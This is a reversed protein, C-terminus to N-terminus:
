IGKGLNDKKSEDTKGNKWTAKEIEQEGQSRKPRRTTGHDDWGM